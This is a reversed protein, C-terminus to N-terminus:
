KSTGVEAYTLEAEGNEGNPSDSIVAPTTAESLLGLKLADREPNIILAALIGAITMAIGLILFAQNFGEIQTAARQILTGVLLPVIIGGVTFGVNTFAFVAARQRVPSIRGASIFVLSLTSNPLGLALSLLAIKVAPITVVLSLLISAGSIAVIVGMLVGISWRMPIGRRTAWSVVFGSGIFSIFGVIPPLAAVVGASKLEMGLSTQLYMPFWTAYFTLAWFSFHSALMGGIWTGTTLIRRYPVRKEEVEAAPVEATPKQVAAEENSTLPGDKCFVFWVTVWILGVAAMFLFSMQWSYTAIIFTLVPAAIALGITSGSATVSTPMARESPKFWKYLHHYMISVTPGEAAGLIVRSLMLTAFSASLLVPAQAVSWLLVMGALLWRSSVKNGIFGVVLPTLCFVLFFTSGIAGFQMPTLGLDKMIPGAALGLLSKDAWNIVMVVTLMAAAFWGSSIRKKETLVTPAIMPKIKQSM